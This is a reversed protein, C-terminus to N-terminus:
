DEVLADGYQSLPAGMFSLIRLGFLRTSALPWLLALRGERRGTVITLEVNSDRYHQTWRWLWGFTHFIQHPRGSSEFLANWEPALAAFAARDRVIAFACLPPAANAPTPPPGLGAPPAPAIAAQGSGVGTGAERTLNM